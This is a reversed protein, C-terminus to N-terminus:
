PDPRLLPENLLSEWESSTLYSDKIKLEEFTLTVKVNRLFVDFMPSRHLHSILVGSSTLRWDEWTFTMGKLPILQVWLQWSRPKHDTDLRWLYRDGPTTGGSKYYVLVGEGEQDSVLSRQTGRDRTKFPAALWFSDNNFHKISKVVYKAETLVDLPQGLKFARGRGTPTDIYVSISENLDVKVRGLRKHWVYHRSNRFTWEVGEAKFWARANIALWMDDIIEEAKQDTDGDNVRQPLPDSFVYLITKCGGISVTIVILVAIIRKVKVAQVSDIREINTCRILDSKSSMYTLDM